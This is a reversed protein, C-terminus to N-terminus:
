EDCPMCLVELLCRQRQRPAWRCCNFCDDTVPPCYESGGNINKLSKKTLRKLNKMSEIDIKQSNTHFLSATALCILLRM